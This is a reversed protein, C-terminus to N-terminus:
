TLITNTVFQMFFMEAEESAARYNNLICFEKNFIVAFCEICLEISLNNLHRIPKCLSAISKKAFIVTGGHINAQRCYNSVLIYDNIFTTQLKERSQWHEYPM